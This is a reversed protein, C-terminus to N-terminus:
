GVDFRGQQRHEPGHITETEGPALELLLHRDGPGPECGEDPRPRLLDRDEGVGRNAGVM